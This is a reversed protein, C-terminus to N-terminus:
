EEFWYDIAVCHGVWEHKRCLGDGHLDNSIDAVENNNYIIICLFFPNWRWYKQLESYVM